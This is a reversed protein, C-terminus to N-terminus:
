PRLLVRAPTAELLVRHAPPRRSPSSLVGSRQTLSHTTPAWAGQAKSTFPPALACTGLIEYNMAKQLWWSQQEDDALNLLTPVFMVDHLLIFCDEGLLLQLAGRDEFRSPFPARLTAPKTM